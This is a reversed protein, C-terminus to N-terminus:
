RHPPDKKYRQADTIFQKVNEETAKYFQHTADLVSFYDLQELPIDDVCGVFGCSEQERLLLPFKEATSTASKEFFRVDNRFTVKDKGGYGWGILNVPRKGNNHLQFQAMLRTGDMVPNVHITLRVAEDLWYRKLALCTALIGVALGGIGWVGHVTWTSLADAM